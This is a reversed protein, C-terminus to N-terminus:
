SGSFSLICESNNQGETELLFVILLSRLSSLNNMKYKTADDYSWSIQQWALIETQLMVFPPSKRLKPAASNSFLRRYEYNYRALLSPQWLMWENDDRTLPPLPAFLENFAPHGLIQSRDVLPRIRPYNSIVSHFDDFISRIADILSKSGPFEGNSGCNRVKVLFYELAIKLRYMLMQIRMYAQRELMWEPEEGNEMEV